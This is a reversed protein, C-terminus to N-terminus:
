RPLKGEGNPNYGGIIEVMDAFGDGDTDIKNPDTKWNKVESFDSLGDGDTDVEAASTNLATEEATTLGDQDFDNELEKPYEPRVSLTEEEVQIVPTPVNSTTQVIPTEGGDSTKQQWWFFAGGFIAIILIIIIFLKKM